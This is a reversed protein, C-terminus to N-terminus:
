EELGAASLAESWSGYSRLYVILGDRGAAIHAHEREVPVGGRGVGSFRWLALGREGVMEYRCPEITLEEWLAMFDRFFTRMGEIGRYVEPLDPYHGSTHFEVDPHCHVVLADEDGRNWADYLHRLRDIMM